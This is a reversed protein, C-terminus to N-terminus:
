LSMRGGLAPVCCGSNMAVESLDGSRGSLPSAEGLANQMHHGRLTALLASPSSSFAAFSGFSTRSQHVAGYTPHTLRTGHANQEASSLSSQEATSSLVEEDNIADERSRRKKPARGVDQRCVPCNCPNGCGSHVWQSWCTECFLHGCRLLKIKKGDAGKLPIGFSDVRKLNKTVPTKLCEEVSSDLDQLAKENGDKGLSDGYDFCELCIPCVRSHYEKQLQRAKDRDVGSLKSRQEAYQWRKRRDRYEGWAGFVFTFIAFAIVVGFRAMFDHCRDTWTPPGAQLLATLLQMGTAIAPGFESQSLAPKMAAVVHDLRWWPLVYSLEMGTTIFCVRDQISLFILIYSSPIDPLEDEDHSNEDDDHDDDGEEEDSSDHGDSSGSVQVNAAPGSFWADFLSRAFIQAADNVMENEDEYSFYSGSRLVAALNMKRVTAVAIHVTRTSSLSQQQNQKMATNAHSKERVHYKTMSSPTAFAPPPAMLPPMALPTEYTATFNRLLQQLDQLVMGGLVWDPDCLYLPQHQNKETIASRTVNTNYPDLVPRPDILGSIACRVPDLLPNPYADPTWGYFTPNTQPANDRNRKSDRNEHVKDKDDDDDMTAEAVALMMEQTVSRSSRTHLMPDSSSARPPSHMAARRFNNACNWNWNWASTRLTSSEGTTGFGQHLYVAVLVILTVVSGLMLWQSPSSLLQRRQAQRMSNQLPSRRVHQHQHSQRWLNRRFVQEMVFM